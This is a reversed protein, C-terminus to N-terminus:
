HAHEGLLASKLSHFREARQPQNWPAGIFPKVSEADVEAFIAELMEHALDNRRITTRTSKVIANPNDTGRAVHAVIRGKLLSRYWERIDSM